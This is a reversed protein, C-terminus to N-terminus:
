VTDYICVGTTRTPTHNQTYPSIGHFVIFDLVMRKATRPFMMEEHLANHCLNISLHLIDVPVPHIPEWPVM